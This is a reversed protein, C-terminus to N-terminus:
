RSNKAIRTYGILLDARPQFPKYYVFIEYDNETQFHSGEFVYPALSASKVLYQYDYWGQKLLFKAAYQRNVSDYTMRNTEDNNWYNFGGAVYVGGDVPESRLTFNVNVYNTFSADRYDLNAILFNGNLDNYQSYSEHERSKDPEVFVEWPKQAKNVRQVNRGPYNISRLDFFRFENGGKFMKSDDFFRYELEKDFERVFAPNIGSAMNDWRQNQRIVVKINETPNIVDLNKYSIKFNLQQNIEAVSGSVVLNNGGSFTIRNDFVMFRKSLILDNKDSGRYVILVYNGPLKVKPLDFWYHVYPVSTDVSFEFNNIPFENYDTMFDLDHLSSRTWDYNCHIVKAYFNDRQDNLDDFALRLNFQGLQTASTLVGEASGSGPYLMITKVQSEYAKDELHLEKPNGDATQSSQAIPTCTALFATLIILCNIKM